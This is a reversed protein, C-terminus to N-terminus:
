GEGGGEGPPSYSPPEQAPPSASEPMPPSASEPMASAPAAAKEGSRGLWWKYGFYVVVSGVAAVVWVPWVARLVTAVDSIPVLYIYYYTLSIAWLIAFTGFLWFRMLRLRRDIDESM